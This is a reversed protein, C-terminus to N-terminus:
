LKLYHMIPKVQPLLNNNNTKKSITAFKKAESQLYQRNDGTGILLEQFAYEFEKNVPSEIKKYIGELNVNFQDYFNDYANLTTSQSFVKGSYENSTARLTTFNGLTSKFGRMYRCLDSFYKNFHAEEVRYLYLICYLKNFYRFKSLKNRCALDTKIGFSSENNVAEQAKNIRNIVQVQIPVQKSKFRDFIGGGSQKLYSTATDFDSRYYLNALNFIINLNDFIKNLPADSQQTINHIKNLHARIKEMSDNCLMMAAAIKTIYLLLTRLRKKEANSLKGYISKSISIAQEKLNSISVRLASLVSGASQKKVNKIHKKTLGPNLIENKNIKKSYKRKINISKKVVM